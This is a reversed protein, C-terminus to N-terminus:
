RWYASCLAKMGIWVVSQRGRRRNTQVEEKQISDIVSLGIMQQMSNRKSAL